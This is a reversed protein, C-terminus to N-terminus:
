PILRYTYFKLKLERATKLLYELRQPKIGWQATDSIDHTTFPVIYSGTFKAALLILRIDNEFKSDDPYLINDIAKSVIYGGSITEPNYFRINAGYGRTLPFFSLLTERMWPQSFGFPFAFASFSIGAASFVEASKITEFHFTDRSVKTLDPHNVSHFGLDHGRSRAEVCFDALGRKKLGLLSDSSPKRLDEPRLKGQVFFTVKAGYYDFMEFYRYWTSWSNDDFSLLLGAEDDMPNWILSDSYFIGNTLDELFFSVSFFGEGNQNAGALDYTVRFKQGDILCEGKVLIDNAAKIGPGSVIATGGEFYKKFLPTNKKINWLALEFPEKSEGPEKSERSEKLEKPEELENETRESSPYPDEPQTVPQSACSIVLATSLILFFASIFYKQRVM